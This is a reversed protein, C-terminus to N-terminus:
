EVVNRLINYCLLATVQFAKFIDNMKEVSSTVRVGLHLYKNTHCAVFYQSYQLWNDKLYKLIVHHRYYKGELVTLNSKYESETDSNVLSYFSDMFDNIAMDDHNFYLSARAKVAKYIHWLCLIFGSESFVHVIANIQALERDALIVVM